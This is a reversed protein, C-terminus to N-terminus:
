LTKLFNKVNKKVGFFHFFPGSFNSMIPWGRKKWLGAWVVAWLGSNIKWIIFDRSWVDTRKDTIKVWQNPGKKKCFNDSTVMSWGLLPIYQSQLSSKGFPFVTSFRNKNGVLYSNNGKKRGLGKWDWFM